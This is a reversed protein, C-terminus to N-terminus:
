RCEKDTNWLELRIAPAHYTDGRKYDAHTSELIALFYTDGICDLIRCISYGEPGTRSWDKNQYDPELLYVLDGIEYEQM